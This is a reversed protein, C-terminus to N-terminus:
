QGFLEDAVGRVRQGILCAKKFTECSQIESSKVEYWQRASGELIREVMSLNEESSVNTLRRELETLVQMPIRESGYIRLKPMDVVYQSKTGKSKLM